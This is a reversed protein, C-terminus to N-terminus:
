HEIEDGGKAEREDLWLHHEVHIVLEEQRGRLETDNHTPISQCHQHPLCTKALQAVAVPSLWQNHKAQKQAEQEIRAQDEKVLEAEDDQIGRYCPYAPRENGRRQTSSVQINRIGFM